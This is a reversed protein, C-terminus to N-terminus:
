DNSETQFNPDIVFAQDVRGIELWGPIYGPNENLFNNWFEKDVDEQTEVGLVEKTSTINKINVLSLTLLIFTCVMIFLLKTNKNVKFDWM